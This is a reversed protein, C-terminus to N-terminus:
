NPIEIIIGIQSQQEKNCLCTRKKGKFKQIPVSPSPWKGTQLCSLSKSSGDEKESVIHDNSAVLVIGMEIAQVKDHNKVNQALAMAGFILVCLITLVAKM